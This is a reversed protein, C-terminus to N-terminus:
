RTGKELCNTCIYHSLKSIVGKELLMDYKRKSIAKRKRLDTLYLSSSEGDHMLSSCRRGYRGDENRIHENMNIINVIIILFVNNFNVLLDFCVVKLGFKISVEIPTLSGRDLNSLKKLERISTSYQVRISSNFGRDPRSYFNNHM